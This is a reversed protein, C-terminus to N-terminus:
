AFVPQLGNWLIAHASAFFTFSPVIVQGTLGLARLVMMLGSTCSSVAVCYKVQLREAVAAELHEVTTANTISGASFAKEYYKVAHNLPPLLPSCFRLRQEFLANGGYLAPISSSGSAHNAPM